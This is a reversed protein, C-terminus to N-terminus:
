AIGIMAGIDRSSRRRISFVIWLIRSLFWARLSVTMNINLLPALTLSTERVSQQAREDM